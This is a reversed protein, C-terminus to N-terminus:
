LIKAVEFHMGDERTMFHGGWYFGHKNAISVLERVCGKEGILAPEVGLGNFAANIDFASGFAHNSLKSTSKRQFRPVFAGDFTLIRDLLGASEWELWLAVLQKEAIKHFRMSLPGGKGLFNKLPISVKVINKSEWDGIIRINEPNGSVPEHVFNFKGFMAQKDELSLLARFAPRPPFDPSSTDMAAASPGAAAVVAAFSPCNQVGGWDDADSVRMADSFWSVFRDIHAGTGRPFCHLKWRNAASDDRKLSGANYAAAVLPADWHTSGRQSAIYATGAEISTRPDLLDDGRLTSRGTAFRATRVLTQMLGVSEDGIGPEARRASPNGSSETAITAVILEVPVGYQKAAAACLARYNDWIKRVTEPEGATGQARAGEISIGGATLSWSVGDAFHRHPRTLEPLVEGILQPPAPKVPEALVLESKPAAPETIVATSRTVPLAEGRVDVMGGQAVGIAGTTAIAEKALKVNEKAQLAQSEANRQQMNAVLVDKNRSSQSSGLWYSMVTAFAAALSGVCINIIQVIFDSRPSVLASIQDPRLNALVVRVEDPLEILKPTELTNKMLVFMILVSFFGLTVIISLMAPVYAISSRREILEGLLERASGTDKQDQQRQEIETKQAAVAQALNAKHGEIETALMSKRADAEAELRAKLEVAEADLVLKREEKAIQALEVRLKAVLEPDAKLKEEAQQPDSVGTVATVAREVFDVAEGSRKGVIADIIAPFISSAIAVLPTM